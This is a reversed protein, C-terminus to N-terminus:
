FGVLHVAPWWASRFLILFCTMAKDTHEKETENILVSKNAPSFKIFYHFFRTKINFSYTLSPYKRKKALTNERKKRALADSVGFHGNHGLVLVAILTANNAHFYQDDVHPQGLDVECVVGAIRYM